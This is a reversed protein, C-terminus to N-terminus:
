AGHPRRWFVTWGRGGSSSVSAARAIALIVSEVLFQLAIRRATAGLVARVAIERRRSALRALTLSVVNACAALLVLAVAGLLLSLVLGAKGAGYSKMSEVNMTFGSERKYKDPFATYFSDALRAMDAGASAITAGPQLRGFVLIFRSGRSRPDLQRANFALPVWVDRPEADEGTQDGLRPQHDYAPPLVGIVTHPKGDLEIVKGVINRDGDFARRHFAASLIAVPAAGERDEGPVFDRGLEPAIGLLRIFEASM